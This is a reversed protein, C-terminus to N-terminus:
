REHRGNGTWAGTRLSRSSACINIYSSQEEVKHYWKMSTAMVRDLGVTVVIHCEAMWLELSGIGAEM